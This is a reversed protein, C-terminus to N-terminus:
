INILPLHDPLINVEVNDRQDFRWVMLLLTGISGIDPAETLIGPLVRFANQFLQESVTNWAGETIWLACACVMNVTAYWGPSPSQARQFHRQFVFKIEDAQFFNM